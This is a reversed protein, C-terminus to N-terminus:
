IPATAISAAHPANVLRRQPEKSGNAQHVNPKLNARISGTSNKTKIPQMKVAQARDSRSQQRAALSPGAAVNLKIWAFKRGITTRPSFNALMALSAHVLLRIIELLGQDLRAYVNTKAHPYGIVQARKISAGKVRQASVM